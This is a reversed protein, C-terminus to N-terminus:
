CGDGAGDGGISAGVDSGRRLTPFLVVLGVLLGCLGIFLTIPAIVGHWTTDSALDTQWWGFALLALSILLMRM